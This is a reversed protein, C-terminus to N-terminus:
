VLGLRLNPVVFTSKKFGMKARKYLLLQMSEVEMTPTAVPLAALSYLCLKNFCFRRVWPAHAVPSVSGEVKPM